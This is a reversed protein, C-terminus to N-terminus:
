PRDSTDSIKSGTDALSLHRSPGHPGGIGSVAVIVALLIILCLIIGSIKVWRPMGPYPPQDAM